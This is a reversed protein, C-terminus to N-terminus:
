DLRHMCVELSHPRKVTFSLSLSYQFDDELDVHLQHWHKSLKFLVPWRFNLSLFLLSVFHYGLKFFANILHAPLFFPPTFTISATVAIDYQCVIDFAVNINNPTRSSVDKADCSCIDYKPPLKIFIHRSGSPASLCVTYKMLNCFMPCLHRCHNAVPLFLIAHTLSLLSFCVRKLM